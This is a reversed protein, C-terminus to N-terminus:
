SFSFQQILNYRQDAILCSTGVVYAMFIPFIFMVSSWVSMALVLSPLGILVQLSPPFTKVPLLSTVFLKSDPHKYHFAQISFPQVIATILLTQIILHLKAFTSRTLRSSCLGPVFKIKLKCFFSKLTCRSQKGECRKCFQIYHNVFCLIERRKLVMTFQVILHFLYGLVYIGEGVYSTYTFDRCIIAQILRLLIFIWHFSYMVNMLYWTKLGRNSYKLLNRKKDWQYPITRFGHAYVVCSELLRFTKCSLM